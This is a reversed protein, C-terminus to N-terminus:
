EFIPFRSVNSDTTSFGVNSEATARIRIGCLSERKLRNDFLRSSDSRIIKCMVTFKANM